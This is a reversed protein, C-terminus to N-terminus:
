NYYTQRLNPTEYSCLTMIALISSENMVDINSAKLM